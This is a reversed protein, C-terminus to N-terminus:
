KGARWQIVFEITVGLLAGLGFVVPVLMSGIWFIAGRVTVDSRAAEFQLYLVWLVCSVFGSGVAWLFYRM